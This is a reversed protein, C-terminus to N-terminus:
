YGCDYDETEIKDRTATVQVGDGFIMELVDQAKHILTELNKLNIKTQECVNEQDDGRWYLSDYGEHGYDGDEFDEPKEKVKTATNKSRYLFAGLGFVCPDGDNFGPTYQTWQVSEVEPTSDFFDRFDSKLLDEGHIKVKKKYEERLEFLQSLNKIDSM